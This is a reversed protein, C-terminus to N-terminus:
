DIKSTGRTVAAKRLDRGHSDGDILRFDYVTYTASQELVREREMKKPEFSLKIQM